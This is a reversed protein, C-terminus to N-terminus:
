DQAPPEPSYRRSGFELLFASILIEISVVMAGLQPFGQTLFFIALACILFVGFAFRQFLIQSNMRRTLKKVVEPKTARSKNVALIRNQLWFSFTVSAVFLGIAAFILRSGVLGAITVGFIFLFVASAPAIVRVISVALWWRSSM